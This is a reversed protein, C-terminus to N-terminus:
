YMRATFSFISVCSCHEANDSFLLCAHEEMPRIDDHSNKKSINEKRNIYFSM